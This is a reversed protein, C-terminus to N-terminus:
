QFIYSSWIPVCCQELGITLVLVTTVKGDCVCVCVCVCVATV